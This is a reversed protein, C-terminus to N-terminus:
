NTGYKKNYIEKIKKRTNTIMVRLTAENKYFVGIGCLAEITEKYKDGCANFLLILNRAALNKMNMLIEWTRTFKVSKKYDYYEDNLKDNLFLQQKELEDEYYTQMEKIYGNLLKKGDIKKKMTNGFNKM